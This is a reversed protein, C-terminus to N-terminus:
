LLGKQRLIVIVSDEEKNFFLALQSITMGSNYFQVLEREEKKTWRKKRQTEEQYDTETISDATLTEQIKQNEVRRLMFQGNIGLQIEPMKHLLEEVDSPRVITGGWDDWDIEYAIERPTMSRSCRKMVRLIAKMRKRERSDKAVDKYCSPNKEELNEDSTVKAYKIRQFEELQLPTIKRGVVQEIWDTPRPWSIGIAALQCKTFGGNPTRASEILERTLIIETESSNECDNESENNQEAFPIATSYSMDAYLTKASSCKMFEIAQVIKEVIEISGDESMLSVRLGSLFNEYVVAFSPSLEERSVPHSVIRDFLDYVSPCVERFLDREMRHSKLFTFYEINLTLQVDDSLEHFQRELDSSERTSKTVANENKQSLINEYESLAIVSYDVINNSSQSLHDIQEESLSTYEELLVRKLSSRGSYLSILFFLDEDLEAYNVCELILSESPKVHSDRMINLIDEQGRKPVVHWFGETQMYWFPLYVEPHFLSEDILVRNWVELFTRKLVDDYKIINESLANTEYMEIITLLLIAKHPSKRSYKNNTRLNKFAEIYDM